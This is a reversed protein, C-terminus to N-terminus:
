LPRGKKDHNAPRRMAEAEEFRDQADLCVAANERAARAAPHDAGFVREHSRLLDALLRDAEDYVAREYYLHALGNLARLLAPGDPGHGRVLLVAARQYDREAPVFKKAAARADARATLVEAVDPHDPGLASERIAAARKLAVEARRFRREDLLTRGVHLWGRAMSLGEAGETREFVALAQRFCELAARPNGASRELQGRRLFVNGREAAGEPGKDLLREANDYHERAEDSRGLARAADGWALRFRILASHADGFVIRAIKQSRALHALGEASKNRMALLQALNALDQAIAVSNQVADREHIKLALTLVAEAEALRGTTEYSRALETLPLALTEHEPGYIKEKVALAQVQLPEADRFRGKQIYYSALGELADLRRHNLRGLRESAQVAEILRTEVAAPDSSHKSMQFRYKIM